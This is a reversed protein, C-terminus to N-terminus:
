ARKRYRTAELIQSAIRGLPVSRAVAGLEACARPMGYVACSEEDQAITLGGQMCIANMGEAGDTGMGTLIVGMALNRFHQAVSKMTVDVAPMHLHLEPSFGLSIFTQLDPRRHVTMHMGAPAIYVVGPV